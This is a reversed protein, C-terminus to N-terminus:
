RGFRHALRRAADILPRPLAARLALPVTALPGARAAHRRLLARAEARFGLRLCNNLMVRVQRRCLAELDARTDPHTATDRLREFEALVIEGREPRWQSQLRNEADLHYLATVEPTWAVPTGLALRAWFIRDPGNVVEEPFGGAAEFASRTLATSSATLPQAGHAAARLYRLPGPEAPVHAFRLRRTRGEPTIEAHATGFVGAEPCRIRLELLARLHRPTWADDSDLFALVPAVAARVGRNRAAAHGRNPQSIVRIQPHPGALARAIQPGRDTSGDDVVLIEHALGDAAALASELARAIHAEKQWLPLIVSIGPGDGTTLSM